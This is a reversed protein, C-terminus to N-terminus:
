AGRRTEDVHRGKSGDASACLEGQPRGDGPPPPASVVEETIHLAVPAAM